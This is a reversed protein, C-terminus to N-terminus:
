FYRELKVIYYNNMHAFLFCLFGVTQFKIHLLIKGNKIM